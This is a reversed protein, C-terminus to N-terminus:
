RQELTAEQPGPHVGARSARGSSWGRCGHEYNIVRRQCRRLRFGLGLSHGLGGLGLLRRENRERRWSRRRLVYRPCALSLHPTRRGCQDAATAAGQARSCALAVWQLQVNAPGAQIHRGKGCACHAFPERTSTLSGQFFGPRRAAGLRAARRTAWTWPMEKSSATSCM